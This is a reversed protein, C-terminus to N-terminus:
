PLTVYCLDCTVLGCSVDSAVTPFQFGEGSLDPVVCRHGNEGSKDLVTNSTGTLAMPFFSFYFYALVDLPSFFRKLLHHQLGPCGGASHLQVVKECWM